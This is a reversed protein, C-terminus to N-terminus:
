RRCWCLRHGTNSVDRARSAHHVAALRAAQDVGSLVPGIPRLDRRWPRSRDGSVAVSLSTRRTCRPLRFWVCLRRAFSRFFVVIFITFRDGCTQGGRSCGAGSRGTYRDHSAARDYVSAAPRRRAGSGNSGADTRRGSRRGTSEAQEVARRDWRTTQSCTPLRTSPPMPASSARVGVASFFAASCPIRRQREAHRIDAPRRNAM